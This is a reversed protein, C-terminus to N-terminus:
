QIVEEVTPERRQWREAAERGRQRLEESAGLQCLVLDVAEPLAEAVPDTLDLGFNELDRAEVGVIVAKPPVREPFMTSAIKLIEALGVSHCCYPIEAMQAADSLELVQTTGPEVGRNSADVLLLQEDARLEDLLEFGIVRRLEVSVHDPLELEQLVRGVRVGVGDDRVLENGVCLVRTKIAEPKSEKM